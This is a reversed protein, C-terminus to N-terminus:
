GNVQKGPTIYSLRLGEHGGARCGEVVELAKEPNRCHSSRFRQQLGGTLNLNLSTSPETQETGM